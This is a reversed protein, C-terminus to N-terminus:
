VDWYVWSNGACDLHMEDIIETNYGITIGNIVAGATAGSKCDYVRHMSPTSTKNRNDTVGACYVLFGSRKQNSSPNGIFKSYNGKWSFSTEVYNIHNWGRSMKTTFTYTAASAPLAAYSVLMAISVAVSIIKKKISKM